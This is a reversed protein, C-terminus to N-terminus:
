ATKRGDWPVSIESDAELWIFPQSWGTLCLIDGQLEFLCELPGNLEWNKIHAIEVSLVLDYDDSSISIQAIWRLIDQPDYAISEWKITKLKHIIVRFTLPQFNCEARVAVNLNGHRDPLVLDSFHELLEAM